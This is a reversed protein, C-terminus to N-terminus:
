GTKITLEVKTGAPEHADNYLDSITISGKGKHLQNFYNVREEALKLGISNHYPKNLLNYDSSKKRGIGNDLITYTIYDKDLSVTITLQLDTKDSNALGHVIANEVYPQILFSPVRYDGQILQPDVYSHYEFKHNFRLQELEIYLNLAEMDKALPV